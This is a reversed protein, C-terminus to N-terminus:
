SFQFFFMFTVSNTIISSKNYNMLILNLKFIFLNLFNIGSGILCYDACFHCFNFYQEIKIYYDNFLYM